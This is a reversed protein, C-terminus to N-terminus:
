TRSCKRHFLILSHIVNLCFFPAGWEESCKNQFLGNVLSLPLVSCLVCMFKNALQSNFYYSEMGDARTFITQM